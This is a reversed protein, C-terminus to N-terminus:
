FFSEKPKNKVIKKIGREESPTLCTESRMRKSQAEEIRAWGAVVKIM